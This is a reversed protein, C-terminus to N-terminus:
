YYVLVDPLDNDDEDSIMLKIPNSTIPSQLVSEIVSKVDMNKRLEKKHKPVICGYIISSNFTIADVKIKYSEKFYDKVEKVTIPGKLLFTNWMSFNHGNITNNKAAIPESFGFYPLSLNLFTNRFLEIKDFNQVLKYLELTVLGAVISTTTALAPIIKGAIGKITHRSEIPIGYNLSRMNSAYTIYDIHFNGDNDKEFEEPIITLNDPIKPISELISEVSYSNSLDELRKKEEEDNASVKVVDEKITPITISDLVDEINTTNIKFINAWLNSLTRVYGLHVSNNKDLTLPSPCKKDGSWFKTEMNNIPNITVHNTPFNKLLNVIQFNYQEYWQNVAFQVCDKYDKPANSLVFKINNALTLLESITKSKISEPNRIYNLTDNPKQTFFDEFQERSWQICHAPQSPFTKITCIPISAEPPDVSSGYSETIYPVIVQVNGKTGLTGSELLSKKFLVCRSDVYLRASVNDLANAVGSISKYFSEDFIHETEPGVKDLMPIINVSNNMSKIAKAATTSKSQGIDSNRFLFQRNLNSKEITDMDTIYIKGEDTGLGIMAFNKLLECGIAGSGVIFYSSNGLKKQMEEGFVQIQSQYRTTSSKTLDKYNSSLCDFADFYLWQNIPTFKGSCAKLVEQGVIGGIISNIPTLTGHMTNVFKDVLNDEITPYLKKVTEEINTSTLCQYLAHLKNCKEFDSYDVINFEPNNISEALPKFSVTKPMKVQVVEGDAIYDSYNSTNTLLKFSTRSVYEIEIPETNNLETMGTVNSFQVFDGSVLDHPRSEHCLVIPNSTKEIHTVISSKPQEGDQDVITFNDGFDCFIQGTLGVTACSIFHVNNHTIKNINLQAQPTYNVLVVVSHEKLIPVTLEKIVSVDVYSNLEALKPLVVDVVNKGIDNESAYYNTGLSYETVLSEDYLSVKKFGQLIVNKAIEVGLGNLGCILVSSKLMKKMADFGIAYLQRSYLNEDIQESM